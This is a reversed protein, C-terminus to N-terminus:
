ASLLLVASVRESSFFAAARQELQSCLFQVSQWLVSLVGAAVSSELGSLLLPKEGANIFFFRFLCTQLFTIEFLFCLFNLISNLTADFGPSM